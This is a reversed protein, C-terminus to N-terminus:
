IFGILSNKGKDQFYRILRETGQSEGDWLLIVMDAKSCFFIDRESPGDLGKPLPEVAADLFQVKGSVVAERIRQSLDYRNYGVAIVQENRLLLYDIVKDDVTGNSGCYWLSNTGIYPHLIEEIRRVIRAPKAMMSGTVVITMPITRVIKMAELNTRIEYRAMTQRVAEPLYQKLELLDDVKYEHIRHTRLDFPLRARSQAILITPKGLAMAYGTEWMVNSNRGTVDSICLSAEQLSIIIDETIRGAAHIDKLWYCDIEESPVARTVAERIAAFVPDFKDKFPMIVFCKM